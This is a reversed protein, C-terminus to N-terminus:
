RPLKGDGCCAAPYEVSFLVFVYAMNQIMELGDMDSMTSHTNKMKM